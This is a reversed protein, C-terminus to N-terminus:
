KSNAIMDNGRKVMNNITEDVTQRGYCMAEFEEKWITNLESDVKGSVNRRGQTRDISLYEEMSKVDIAGDAKANINDIVLTKELGSWLPIRGKAALPAMGGQMYWLVFEACQEPYDTKNAICILDGAGSVAAHTRYFETEYEAGDPVPGPVLATVFDHPYNERDMCMTMSSINTSMACKGSLFTNAVTMKESYEDEIPIAWGNQLTTNVMELGQKWAPSDYNVASAADDKYQNYEGLVSSMIGKVGNTSQNLTWSIGYVKDQGEGVTLKEAATLFESYSWGDYPIDLGAAEFMDQNILLWRVNEYKTPFGYISGDDYLYNAMSAQGLEEVLDIGRAALLDSMDLVMNAESRVNLTTRGGYGMFVDVGDGSLLRTELQLNGDSDNVYRTYEIQLGRDKYEENFNEVMKDYGYDLPLGGWFSLTITKGDETGLWDVKAAETAAETAGSAKTTEVVSAAKTTEPVNTVDAKEGCGALSSIVMLSAMVMSVKKKM